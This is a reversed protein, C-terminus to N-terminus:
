RTWILVVGCGAATRNYKAPIQATSTYVEIGAIHEPQITNVDFLGNQPSRSDFVMAGDVYVDMYCGGRAGAASDIRSLRAPPCFACTGGQNVARFSAVWAKSGGRRM